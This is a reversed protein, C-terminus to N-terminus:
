FDFGVYFFINFVKGTINVRRGEREFCVDDVISELSGSYDYFFDSINEVFVFKVFEIISNEFELCEYCSFLYFYCFEFFGM